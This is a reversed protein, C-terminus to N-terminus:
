LLPRSVIFLNSETTKVAAPSVPTINKLAQEPVWDLAFRGAVVFDVEDAEKANWERSPESISCRWAAAVLNYTVPKEVVLKKPYLVGL